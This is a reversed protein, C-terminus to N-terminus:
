DKLLGAINQAGDFNYGSGFLDASMASLNQRNHFYSQLYGEAEGYPKDQAYKQLLRFMDEEGPGVGSFLIHPMGLALSYFVLESPRSFLIDVEETLLRHSVEVLQEVGRTVIIEVKDKFEDSVFIHRIKDELDQHNGVLFKVSIKEKQIITILEKAVALIESKQSEPTIWGAFVGLCLNGTQLNRQIRDFVEKRRVLVDPDLPHGVARIDGNFGLKKFISLVRQSNVGTLVRDVKFFFSTVEGIEDPCINIVKPSGAGIALVSALPHTSIVADYGALGLDEKIFSGLLYEWKRSWSILIKAFKTKNSERKDLNEISSQAGFLLFLFMQFNYYWLCIKASIRKSKILRSEIDILSTQHGQKQLSKAISYAERFHGSGALFYTLAVKM